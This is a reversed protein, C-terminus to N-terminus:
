RSSSEFLGEPESEILSAIDEFSMGSDNEYSLASIGGDEGYAGSTDNLGLWRSVRDPLQDDEGDFSFGGIDKQWPTQTALGYLDCAVGLCCFGKGDRLTNQTQAYEGSRLAEVWKRANQNM